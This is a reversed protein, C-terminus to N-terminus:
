SARKGVAKVAIFVLLLTVEALVIAGGPKFGFVYSAVLGAAASMVGVLPIAAGLVVGAIFARTMFGHSFMDALLQLM